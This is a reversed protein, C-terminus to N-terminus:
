ELVARPIPYYALPSSEIIKRPARCLQLHSPHILASAVIV